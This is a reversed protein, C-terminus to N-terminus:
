NFSCFKNMLHYLLSKLFTNHPIIISSEHKWPIIHYFSFIRYYIQFLIKMIFTQKKEFYKLIFPDIHSLYKFINNLNFSYFSSKWILTQWLQKSSFDLFDCSFSSFALSTSKTLIFPYFLILFQKLYHKNIQTIPFLSYWDYLNNIWLLQVISFSSGFYSISSTNQINKKLLFSFIPDFDYNNDYHRSWSQSLFRHISQSLIYIHIYDWWKMLDCCSFSSKNKIFSTFHNERHSPFYRFYIISLIKRINIISHNWIITSTTNQNIPLFNQIKKREDISLYQSEFYKIKDYAHKSIQKKRNQYLYDTLYINKSNWEDYLVLHIQNRWYDHIDYLYFLFFFSVLCNPYNLEYIILNYDSISKSIFSAFVSDCFSKKIHLPNIGFFRILENTSVYRYRHFFNSEIKYRKKLEQICLYIIIVDLKKIDHIPIYSGTMNWGYGYEDTALLLSAQCCKKQHIIRTYKHNSLLIKKLLSLKQLYLYYHIKQYLEHSNYEVSLKDRITKPFFGLYCKKYFDLNTM